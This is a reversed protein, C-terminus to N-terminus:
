PRPLVAHDEWGPINGAEPLGQNIKDPSGSFHWTMPCFLRSIILLQPMSSSTAPSLWANAYTM